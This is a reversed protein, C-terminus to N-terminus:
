TKSKIDFAVGGFRAKGDSIELIDVSNASYRVVDPAVFDFLNNLEFPSSKLLRAALAKDVGILTELDPYDLAAFAFDHTDLAPPFNVDDARIEVRYQDFWQTVRSVFISIPMEYRYNCRQYGEWRHLQGYNMAPPGIENLAVPTNDVFVAIKEEITM